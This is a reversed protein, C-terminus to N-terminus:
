DLAILLARIDRLVYRSAPPLPCLYSSIHVWLSFQLCIRLLRNVNQNILVIGFIFTQMLYIVPFLWFWKVKDFRLRNNFCKNIWNYILSFGNLIFRSFLCIYSCFLSESFDITGVLKFKIFNQNAYSWKRMRLNFWILSLFIFM